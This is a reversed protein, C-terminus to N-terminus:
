RPYVDDSPRTRQHHIHVVAACLMHLCVTVRAGTSRTRRVCAPSLPSRITRCTNPTHHQNPRINKKDQSSRRETCVRTMLRDHTSTSVMLEVLMWHQVHPTLAMRAYYVLATHAAKTALIDIFARHAIQTGAAALVEALYNSCMVTTHVHASGLECARRMMKVRYSQKSNNLTNCVDHVSLTDCLSYEVILPCTSTSILTCQSCVDTTCRACCM